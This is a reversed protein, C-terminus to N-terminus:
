LMWKNINQHNRTFSHSYIHSIYLSFNLFVFSLLHLLPIISKTDEGVHLRQVVMGFSAIRVLEPHFRGDVGTKRRENERTKRGEFQSKMVRREKPQVEIMKRKDQFLNGFM